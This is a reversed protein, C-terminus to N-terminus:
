KVPKMSQELLGSVSATYSYPTLTGTWTGTIRHPTEADDIFNVTITYEDGNRTITLSGGAANGAESFDPMITEGNTQLKIYDCFENTGITFNLHANKRSKQM